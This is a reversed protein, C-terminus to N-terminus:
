PRSARAERDGDRHLELDCRAGRCTAILGCDGNACPDFHRAAETPHQAEIDDGPDPEALAMKTTGPPTPDARPVRAVTREVCTSGLM